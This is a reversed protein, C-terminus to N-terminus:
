PDKEVAQSVIALLCDLDFPKCLYGSAGLRIAQDQRSEDESASVLIVPIRENIMEKIQKLLDMGPLDRLDVDSIILDFCEKKLRKLAQTGSDSAFVQHGAERLFRSILELVKTDDDVLLIKMTSM